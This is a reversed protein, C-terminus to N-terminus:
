RAAMMASLRELPLGVVNSPSGELIHVWDLGDQYGFAGAKGEWLRTDLYRNLQEPTLVDMRLTTVEVCVNPIGDPLPWLCLGTYVRHQTGSLQELMQHAHQRDDPKGLIQGGCEAVTDCAILTAEGRGEQRQALRGAVEAAKRQALDAVLEAPGCNSCIGLREDVQPPIVEVDYGAEVLLAYRRPSASALILKSNTDSQSPM